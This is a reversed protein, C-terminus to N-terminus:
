ARLVWFADPCKGRRQAILFSSVASGGPQKFLIRRDRQVGDSDQRIFRRVASPTVFADANSDQDCVRRDFAQLGPTRVSMERGGEGRRRRQWPTGILRQQGHSRAVQAQPGASSAV